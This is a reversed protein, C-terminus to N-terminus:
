LPLRMDMTCRRGMTASQVILRGSVDNSTKMWISLQMEMIVLTLLFSNYKIMIKFTDSM